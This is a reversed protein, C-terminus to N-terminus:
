AALKMQNQVTQKTARDKKYSKFRGKKYSTADGFDHHDNLM